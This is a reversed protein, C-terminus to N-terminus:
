RKVSSNLWELYKKSAASVPLAIIEPCEYSHAKRIAQEVKSFLTRRTKIILLHERSKEKKGKWIYHSESLGTISICAALKQDLLVSTVRRAEALSSATTLIVVASM